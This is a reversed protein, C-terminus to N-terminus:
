YISSFRQGAEQTQKAEILLLKRTASIIGVFLFSNLILIRGKEFVKFCAM